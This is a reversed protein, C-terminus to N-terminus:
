PYGELFALRDHKNENYAHFLSMQFGDFIFTYVTAAVSELDMSGNWNDMLKTMMEIDKIQDEKLELRVSNAIKVM